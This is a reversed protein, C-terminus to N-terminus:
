EERGGLCPFEQHILHIPSTSHETIRSDDRFWVLKVIKKCNLCWHATDRFRYACREDVLDDIPMM